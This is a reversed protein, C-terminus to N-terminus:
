HRQAYEPDSIPTYTTVGVHSLPGLVTDFQLSDLYIAVADVFSIM